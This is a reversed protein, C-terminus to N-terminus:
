GVVAILGVSLTCLLLLAATAAVIVKGGGHRLSRIDVSLGLAAMSMITLVNALGSIPALAVEPILGFSRAMIMLVFGLIFWPVMRQLDLRGQAGRGHIISLTTVVPGLMLVRILKVVTGTQVAVTGFPATAALVQPVAYVTMGAFLGYHTADMSVVGPILPMIIVAAVGLVATFAIAAAVDEAKAGIAPAAAAIASNGCISNGCAVLVALKPELGIARSIGYSGVLSLVVVIAIGLILLGGAGKLIALSLSAGLLVVAVELLTKASFKIGTKTVDPLTTSSRLLVGFLIALVLDGLWAHGNLKVQFDQALIAVVSIVGCLAIGPLLRLAPRLSFPLASTLSRHHAM